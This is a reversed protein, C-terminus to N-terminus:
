PAGIEPPQAFRIEIVSDSSDPLTDPLQLLLDSGERRFPVAASKALLALFAATQPDTKLGTLPVVNM